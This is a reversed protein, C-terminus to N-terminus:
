GPWPMAIWSLAPATPRPLVRRTDPRAGKATQLLQEAPLAAEREGDQDSRGCAADRVGKEAGVRCVEGRGDGLQDVEPPSQPGLLDEAGVSAGERADPEDHAASSLRPLQIPVPCPLDSRTFSGRRLKSRARRSM